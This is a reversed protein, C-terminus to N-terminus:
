AYMSGMKKVKEKVEEVLWEPKILRTEEGFFLLRSILESESSASFTLIIKGKSQKTIKQDPSWIRESVFRAAWGTCEVEVEFSGEKAIGFNRNFTKEFDYDDPFEYGRDTMEVKKIRHVALLPDYDPEQYRKGPYKAMQAHLYVTDNHSFLKLPKIYFIKEKKEMIAQYSVKCIKKAEMGEIITYITDHHPTYDITGPRFSGFNRFSKERKEPLLIRSKLLAQTAEEFLKNGLLHATFDRCMELINLEMETLSYTVPVTTPRKIRFYKRNGEMREDINVKYAMRIDNVLRLVTQKSCGLMRSLETLSYSEGSFLLRVFLSILKEGYSRYLDRKEAMNLRRFFNNITGNYPVSGHYTYVILSFSPM